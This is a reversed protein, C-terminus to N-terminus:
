SVLAFAIAGRLGAFWMVVQMKFPIKQKRGFNALYSLPFINAVRGILCYIMCLLFFIINIQAYRGTFLGM